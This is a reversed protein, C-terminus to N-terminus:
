PENPRESVESAPDGAQTGMLVLRQRTLWYLTKAQQAIFYRDHSIFLLGGSYQDLLAHLVELSEIDLHNTPEDMFLFETKALIAAVLACRMLEGRSLEDVKSFARENRIRAAGLAQRVFVESQGYRTMNELLIEHTFFRRIDQPLYLWRVGDNRYCVGADPPLDNVLIRMLTTKGSGNEGIIGIRDKTTCDIAIGSLVVRGEFQKEIQEARIVVRSSVPYDLFSLNLPKEIFPKEEKMSDVLANLRGSVATARKALRASQHGIYGKDAHPNHRKTREVKQAWQKKQIIERELQRIKRELEEAHRERVSFTQEKHSLLASYGGEVSISSGRELYLTRDAVRDIFARDHSVLLFAYRQEKKQLIYEELMVCHAIDLHNTPEDLLFLRAGTIMLRIIGLLRKEGESFASFVKEGDSECFGFYALNKDIEREMDYGGLSHFRDLAEGYVFPDETSKIQEFAEALVPHASFVYEKAKLDNDAIQQPLYAMVTDKDITVTGEDFDIEGVIGKLLTSKGSGNSGTIALLRSEELDFSIGKLVIQSTYSKSIGKVHLM